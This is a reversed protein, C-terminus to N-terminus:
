RVLVSWCSVHFTGDSTQFVDLDHCYVGLHHLAWMQELVSGRLEDTYGRHACVTVQREGSGPQRARRDVVVGQNGLQYLVLWPITTGLILM